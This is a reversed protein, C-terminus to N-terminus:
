FPKEEDTDVPQKPTFVYWGGNSLSTGDRARKKPWMRGDSACKIDLRYGNTKDNGVSQIEYFVDGDRNKRYVYHLKTAEIKQGDIEIVCSNEFLENIDALREFAEKVDKVEFDFELNGSPTKYKVLM